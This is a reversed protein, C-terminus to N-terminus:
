GNTADTSGSEAAALTRLCTPCLCDQYANRLTALTATDLEIMACDCAAEHAGCHFATGCRPCGANPQLSGSCESM